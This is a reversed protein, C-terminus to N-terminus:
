SATGSPEGCAIADNASRRMEAPILRNWSFTPLLGRSSAARVRATTSAAAPSVITMASALPPQLRSSARIAIFEMASRGTKM